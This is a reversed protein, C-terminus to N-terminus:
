EAVTRHAWAYKLKTFLAGAALVESNAAELKAMTDDFESIDIRDLSAELTRVKCCARYRQREAEKLEESWTENYSFGKM